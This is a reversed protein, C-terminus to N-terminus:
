EADIEFPLSVMSFDKLTLSFVLGYEEELRNDRFSLGLGAVWNGLDRHVTYQQHELTGDDLELVHRMGIGWNENLRTYSQLDFRSSDNLVPHGDLLRYGFSFDFNDTPMFHLRTNFESFGSGGDAIPFQTELDVGLWPLPQWRVDNYLNSFNRQGEPDEIFADLYTDLYLWEFSQGDRKSLLRNRAGFRMVNWSQLEDIATFRMPDLPRPRTTPTLRDVGPDGPEFDNTSIYSWTSYPQLIHM